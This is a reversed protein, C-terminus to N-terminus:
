DAAAIKLAFVQADAAGYYHRRRGVATFGFRRYLTQAGPNDAAVELFLTRAGRAAATALAAKLLAGGIERCRREPAVAITMVEGEDAVVRLLAFGVITGPIEAVCGFGGDATLASAISIASWADGFCRGHLRALASADSPEADRIVFDVGAATSM